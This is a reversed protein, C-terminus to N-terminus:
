PLGCRVRRGVRVVHEDGGTSGPVDVAVSWHRRNALKMCRARGRVRFLRVGAKEGAALAVRHEELSFPRDPQITAACGGANARPCRLRLLVSRARLEVGRTSPPSCGSGLSSPPPDGVAWVQVRAVTCGVEALAVRAGDFGFAALSALRGLLEGSRSWVAIAGSEWTVFRDGRAAQPIGTVPLPVPAADEPGLRWLGENAYIVTGDAFLVHATSTGFTRVTDGSRWDIVAGGGSVFRGAIHQWRGAPLTVQEGTALDHVVQPGAPGPPPDPCPPGLLLRGDDADVRSGDPHHICGGVQVSTAGGDPHWWTTDQNREAEAIGGHWVTTWQQSVFGAGVAVLHTAAWISPNLDYLEEPAPAGPHLRWMHAGRDERVGFVVSGDALLVPGASIGIFSGWPDVPVDVHPSAGGAPPAACALCLLSAVISHKV